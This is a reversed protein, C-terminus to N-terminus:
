GVRALHKELKDWTEAVGQEMGMNKVAELDEPTAFVTVSTVQTKGDVAEFTVTIHMTPTNALSNGEKDVFADTYVIKEPAEIAEYTSKGCSDMPKGDQDQGRMCYFWTGGVRFDMDCVPLSWGQPGWWHKLHECQSFAAFVLERPAAFTRSLTFTRAEINTDNNM